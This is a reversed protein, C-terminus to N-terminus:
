TFLWIRYDPGSWYCPGFQHSTRDISPTVTYPWGGSYHTVNSLPPGWITQYSYWGYFKRLSLKLREKVYRQGHLFSIPFDCQVWFLVNILPALGPTGASNHFLFAMPPHLHSTAVWSCFTQLISISIRVSTALPLVFNVRGVLQCSCIWTFLLLTARWWTKSKM